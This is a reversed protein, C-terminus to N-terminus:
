AHDEHDAERQSAAERLLAGILPLLRQQADAPLGAPSTPSFLDPQRPSPQQRHPM